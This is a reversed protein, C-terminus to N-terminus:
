IHILSLDYLTCVSALPMLLDVGDHGFLSEDINLARVLYTEAKAYDKQAIYVSAAILLSHAVKDSGEGYVKENVDVARFFFKEASAYDKQMLANRGLSQLPAALNASQAGYIEETVKLEREYAAEAAAPDQGQRKYM